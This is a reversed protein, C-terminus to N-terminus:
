FIEQVIQGNRFISIKGGSQSVVIGIAGTVLTIGAVSSHRCGLGKPIGVASTDVTIYRGAAEILGDGRVVFAGDLQALEKVNEKIDHGAIMRDAPPHGEFPNLILQKSKAMVAEADGVIFATGVPKAERGEKAIELCINFISDFVEERIDTDSIVKERWLATSIRKRDRSEHDTIDHGICVIETIHGAEDRTARGTWAVWVPEGDRLVMEIIRIASGERNLAIDNVMGSIERQKGPKDPIITGTLSRGTIERSSYGFFSQAAKNFFTIVGDTDIKMILSQSHQLLERYRLDSERLSEKLKKEETIDECVLIESGATGDPRIRLRCEVPTGDQKMLLTSTYGWGEADKRIQVERMAEDYEQHSAFVQDLGRGNLAGEGYGLGRSMRGNVWEFTRTTIRAVWLPTADLIAGLMECRANLDREVKKRMVAQLIIERLEPIAKRSDSTGPVTVETASNLDELVMKGSENRTYLIFPTASGRAKLYKLLDIGSMDALFEIGNVRPLHSYSVIVDYNRNRLIDLAQKTSQVADVRVEGMKELYTRTHDLLETNDHVLLVSIM